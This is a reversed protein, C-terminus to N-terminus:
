IERLFELVAENFEQAREFYASHGAGAIEVLRSGAVQQQITRVIDAPFLIDESGVVYLIPVGTAALRAPTFTQALTGPLTKLRYRNFSAIQAYLLADAPHEARFRAGLVRELQPLDATRSRVEAMRARIEAPEELGVLTDALVLARVRRPHRVTFGACTGGGMSQAVLIARDIGLHDLLRELDDIFAARGLGQPDTSNGFGRHDFLIVRYASAFVPVQRHWSAHNGGIGHAFVLAPGEGHSEWYLQAANIEATPM